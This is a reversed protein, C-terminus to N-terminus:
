PFLNLGQQLYDRRFPQQDGRGAAAAADRVVFRDAQHAVEDFGGLGGLVEERRGAERWERREGNGGWRWVRARRRRRERGGGDYGCEGEGDNRGAVTMGASAKETMGASAAPIEGYGAGVGGGM